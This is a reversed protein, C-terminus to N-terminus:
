VVLDSCHLDPAALLCREVVGSGADWQELAREPQGAALDVMLVFRRLAGLRYDRWPDAWGPGGARRAAAAHYAVLEEEQRRRAEVPLSMVIFAAVDLGPNGRTVHAWDLLVVEHGGSRLPALPCNELHPDGHLLTAGHGLPALSEVVLGFVADGLAGVERGYRDRLRSGVSRWARDFGDAIRARHAADALHPLWDLTEVEGRCSAHLEALAALGLRAHEAGVGDLFSVPELDAVDELLIIPTGSVPDRGAYWAHPIRAPVRPSLEAYFRSEEDFGLSRREGDVSKPCKLVLTRPGPSAATGTELRIRWLESSFVGIARFHAARVPQGLRDAIWAATVGRLHDPPGAPESGARHFEVYVQVPGLPTISHEVEPVVVGVVGPELILEDGASGEIRYRLRGSM